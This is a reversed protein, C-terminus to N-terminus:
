VRFIASIIFHQLDMLSEGPLGVAIKDETHPEQYSKLTVNMLKLNTAAALQGMDTEAIAQCNKEDTAVGRNAVHLLTGSHGIHHVIEASTCEVAMRIARSSNLEDRINSMDLHQASHTGSFWLTVVDIPGVNGLLGDLETDPQKIDSQILTINQPSPLLGPQVYLEYERKESEVRQLRRAPAAVGLLQAAVALCEPNEDIGILKFAPQSFKSRLATLGEGRGCGIDLIQNPTKHMALHQALFTYVGQTEYSGSNSGWQRVYQRYAVDLVDKPAAENIDKHCDAYKRGSGCSCQDDPQLSM